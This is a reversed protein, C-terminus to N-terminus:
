LENGTAESEHVGGQDVAKSSDVTDDDTDDVVQTDTSDVCEHSHVLRKRTASFAMEPLVDAQLMFFNYKILKRGPYQDVNNEQDWEKCLYGWLAKADEGELEAM